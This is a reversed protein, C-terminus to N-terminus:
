ARESWLGGLGAMGIPVALAVAAGVTGSSTLEDAGTIAAIVSLVIIFGSIALLTTPWGPRTIRRRPAPPSGPTGAVAQATTTM